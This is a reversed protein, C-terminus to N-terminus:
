ALDIHKKLREASAEDRFSLIPIPSRRFVKEAVSGVFFYELNTRGKIGMIILDVNEKVAVKLLEESPNGTKFVTRIKEPQHAVKKLIHDLEQQREEKLGAV